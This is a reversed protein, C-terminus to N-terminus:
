VLVRVLRDAAQGAAAREGLHESGLMGLLKALRAREARSFPVTV